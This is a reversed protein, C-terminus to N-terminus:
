LNIIVSLFCFFLLALVVRGKGEKFKLKVKFFKTRWIRGPRLLGSCM